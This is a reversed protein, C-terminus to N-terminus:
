KKIKLALQASQGEELTVKTAKDRLDELFEPDNVQWQQVYELAVALYDGPRVSELKFSGSQDPRASRSTGAAELWKSSEGPFLLVTGEAPNGKDDTIQGTLTPFRNSLVIRTGEMERGGTIELPTDVHDKDGVEISKLAWGPPLPSVRVMSPGSVGKLTFDGASGVVGNNDGVPIGQSRRGPITSQATVRLASRSPPLPSDDDTVVRGTLTGGPDASLVIGEIETGQVVLTMSATEAPKDRSSLSRATLQFEGPPVDRLKWSGDALITTSGIGMFSGGSPGVIEQSLNVSGGSLPTGDQALATGSVTAARMPQLTVDVAGVEQGIAVKVRTADAANATGPFYSPAYAFVTKEKGDTTWTERITAMVVYDGPPLGVLRYQGADDSRMGMGVPVLSRRGQFFQTQMAYVAVGAFADGTEDSLRGSIVGSRPLAVDLKEVAQGDAIQLPKPPEGPRRQGYQLSLYGNRSVSITYRGAPLDAFEYTGQLNTSTSRAETLEPASLRVQVRRLPRGTDAGTIRGKISATGKKETAPDRPPQRQAPSGPPQSAGGGGSQPEATLTLSLLLITLV